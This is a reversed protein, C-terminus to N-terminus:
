VHLQADEGLSLLHDRMTEYLGRSDLRYHELLESLNGSEPIEGEVGIRIVRIPTTHSVVEAVASGLGGSTRHDEIVFIIGTQQAALTIARTDIPQVSSLSVVRVSRETDESLMNAAVVTPLTLSGAVFITFDDGSRLTQSQGWTFTTEGRFPEFESSPLRIYAPGGDKISADIMARAEPEDAPMGVRLGPLSRLQAVDELGQEKHARTASALGGEVKLIIVSRGPLTLYQRVMEPDPTQQTVLVIPSEMSSAMGAAGGLLHTREDGDLQHLRDAYDQLSPSGSLFRDHVGPISLIRGQPYTSLIHGALSDIM